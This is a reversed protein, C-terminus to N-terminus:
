AEDKCSKLFEEELKLIGAGLKFKYGFHHLGFEIAAIGSLVDFLNIYGLHAVRIIKGKLEAQGGAISIGFEARIFKVMEESDLSEPILVSTLTSSPRQAFVKLGLSAVAERTMAALNAHRKWVNEIGEDLIMKLATRLAVIMNVAPTWPTDFKSASKGAKILDFYYKPSSSSEILSQADKSLSIFALGPPLMLGKQSGSVVIDLGWDDMRLEDAGLGSIADVVILANFEKALSAMSRIDYNVGTSTECLTTLIVKRSDGVKLKERLDDLNLTVGWELDLVDYEAGYAKTIEAWREGFKGGVVPIFRVGDQMLNAVAAEMVGTGSSSVILVQNKTQFITKLDESVEKLISRFEDTRHHITSEAQSLLVEEPVPTPGPTLLSKKYPRIM